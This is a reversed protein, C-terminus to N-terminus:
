MAVLPAEALNAYVSRFLAQYPTHSSMSIWVKRVTVRVRAAIKFLTLRITDARAKAYDTGRLGLQRLAQMLMYALSSFYLRNQNARMEGASMRRSFLYLQHEKIRNEAEGRPCYGQEYLNRAAEDALGESVAVFRPNAKGELQEAKAVIRRARSWSNRLPQYRLDSFRRAPKGTRAQEEAAQKLQEEIKRVLRNNRAVGILFDVRNAECWAYIAERSFGSDARVILQAQPFAKRLEPVVRALVEVTPNSPDKDAKQFRVALLQEGCFVYLPLYCYNRYYGHFFRGEQQGHLKVDSPDLDIVLQKPTPNARRLLAVSSELIAQDARKPDLDIRKYRDSKPQESTLELRNLTSSSALPKGRDGKRRRREGLLDRKGLAAALQPDSMLQDHDNLDEYGLMLGFVRQKVLDLMEHEVLDPDRSDTMALSVFHEVIRTVEETRRILLAGGDSSLRGGGFDAVVERRGAGGFALAGGSCETDM